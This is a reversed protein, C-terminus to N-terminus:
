YCDIEVFQGWDYNETNNSPLHSMECCKPEQKLVLRKIESSRRRVFLLICGFYM